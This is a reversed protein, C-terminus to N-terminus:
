FPFKGQDVQPAVFVNTAPQFKNRFTSRLDVKLLLHQSQQENKM